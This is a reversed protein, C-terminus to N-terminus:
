NSHSLLPILAWTFHRRAHCLETSHLASFGNATKIYGVGSFSLVKHFTSVCNPSLFRSIFVNVYEFSFITQSLCKSGYQKLSSLYTHQYHIPANGYSFRDKPNGLWTLCLWNVTVSIRDFFEFEQCCFSERRTPM